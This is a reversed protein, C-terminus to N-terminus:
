KKDVPLLVGGQPTREVNSKAGREDAPMEKIRCVLGQALKSKDGSVVSCYSMAPAAKDIRITAVLTETSGIVEKTDADTIQKDAKYVDLLTGKVLRDGGQDIIIQGDAAIEAIRPPNLRDSLKNVVETAAKAILNDILEKYDLDDPEWKKVLQKVEDTELRLNVSDSFKIQRSSAVIVRYDFVFDARYKKFNVGPAAEDNSKKIRLGAETITGVLMYDTGLAQGIKAQEEIPATLFLVGREHLYEQTHERDLVAFKNTQTLATTLKQALKDALQEGPMNLSLFSYSPSEPRLPMVAMRPRANKDMPQHDYVWVKMTVQYTGDALKKEDVVEYTKVLGAIDTTQVTGSTQVSVADVGVTKGTGTRNIDASVGQYGFSYDGSGVKVGKAQAVAQFLGNKIAEDKTPGQGQVQKLTANEAALGLSCFLVTIALIGCITRM